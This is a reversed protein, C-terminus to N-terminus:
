SRTRSAPRGPPGPRPRIAAHHVEGQQNRQAMVQTAIKEAASLYGNWSIDTLPGSSDEGLLTSPAVNSTATLTTIGLLDKVVTDYQARTM